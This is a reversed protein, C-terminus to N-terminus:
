SVQALAQQLFEMVDDDRYPKVFYRDIGVQAAQHRHKESSRSTIMGIPLAQTDSRSRLHASLELGNMRPMEMDVLLLDIQERELIQLADMGDSATLARYGADTVLQSLLRRMSISDDVVLVTPLPKTSDTEEHWSLELDGSEAVRLITGMEFIPVVTGDGLVSVAMLGPVRPVMAGPKMVVLERGELLADVLVARDGHDSSLILVSRGQREPAGPPGGFLRGLRHLPYCQGEHCFQWGEPTEACDGDDILLALRVENAPVAFLHDGHRLLLCYLTLRSAPLRLQLRYGAGPQSEIALTGNLTHVINAVVDMGVGRGSVHTVAERTSFGPQLTLLRLEQDTPTASAALLGASIAKARIRELDLGRGDDGCTVAIQDGAPAFRIELRGARPKGLQEREDPPEIGHDIANRVLHMLAPMLRDLVEGDIPTEGGLVHLEADKGTARCTQRVARQLRPVISDVQVLRTEMALRQILRQLRGQHQIAEGLEHLTGNLTRGLEHADSVGENIRRAVTYMANYQELELPDFASPSGPHTGSQLGLGRLDVLKELEAVQLSTRHEIEGSESLLHRARGLQEEAQSLAVSLEGVLRLLDDMTQAPVQLYADEREASEDPSPAPSPAVPTEADVPPEARPPSAPRAEEAAPSLAAAGERDIRNAWDLVEQMVGRLGDPDPPEVGNFMDFMLALADTGAALTDGLAHSPRLGQTTLLELLDELYHSLVAIAKVGCINASGKITHAWRQAQRLAEEDGGGAVLTQIVDALKHALDPGERRFSTLVIPDIDTAPALSLDEDEIAVPHSPGSDAELLLPDEKLEHALSEANATSLPDLWHPNQLVAVLERCVDAELPRELYALMRWPLQMLTDILAAPWEVKPSMAAIQYGLGACLTSLALFGAQASATAFRDLIEQGSQAASARAEADPAAAIEEIRTLFEERSETIAMALIGLLESAEPSLEPAQENETAATFVATSTLEEIPAADAQSESVVSTAVVEPPEDQRESRREDHDASATNQPWAAIAEPPLPSEFIESAAMELLASVIEDDDPASLHAELLAMLELIQVAAMEDGRAAQEPLVGVNVDLFALFDCLYPESELSPWLDALCETFAAVAALQEEPDVTPDGATQVAQQLGPLTASFLESLGVQSM